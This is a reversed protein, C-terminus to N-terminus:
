VCWTCYCRRKQASSARTSTWIWPSWEATHRCCRQRVPLITALQASGVWIFLCSFCSLNHKSDLPEDLGWFFRLSQHFQDSRSQQYERGREREGERERERQAGRGPALWCGSLAGSGQILPLTQTSFIRVANWRSENNKREKWREEDDKM